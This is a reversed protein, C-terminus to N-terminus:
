ARLPGGNGSSAGTQGGLSLDQEVMVPAGSVM